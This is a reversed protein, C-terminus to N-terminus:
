LPGTVVAAAGGLAASVPDVPSVLMTAGAYVGDLILVAAPPNVALMATGTVAMGLTLTAVIVKGTM